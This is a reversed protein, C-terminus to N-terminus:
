ESSRSRPLFTAASESASRWRVVARTSPTRRQCISRSPRMRRSSLCGFAFSSASTRIASAAPRMETAACPDCEQAHLSRRSRPAPSAPRDGSQRPCPSHPAACAPQTANALLRSWRRFLLVPPASKWGPHDFAPTCVVAFLSRAPDTPVPLALRVERDARDIAFNFRFKRGLAHTQRRSLQQRRRALNDGAVHGSARCEAFAANTKLILSRLQHRLKRRTAPVFEPNSRQERRSSASEQPASDPLACRPRRTSGAAVQRLQPLPNCPEAIPNFATEGISGRQFIVRCIVHHQRIHRAAAGTRQTAIRLNPVPQLRRIQVPLCFPLARNKTSRQAGNPGAPM